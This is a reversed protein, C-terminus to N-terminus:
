NFLIKNLSNAETHRYLFLPAIEGFCLTLPALSSNAVRNSADISCLLSRVYLMTLM